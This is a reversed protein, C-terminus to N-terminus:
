IYKKVGALVSKLGPRPLLHGLERADQQCIRTQLNSNFAMRIINTAVFLVLPKRLVSSATRSYRRAWSTGPEETVAIPRPFASGTDDFSQCGAPLLVPSYFYHYGSLWDSGTFGADVQFLLPIKLVMEAAAFM